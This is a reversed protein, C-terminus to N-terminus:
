LNMEIWKLAKNLNPLTIYATGAYGDGYFRLGKIGLMKYQGVDYVEGVGNDINYNDIEEITEALDLLDLITEICDDRTSGLSLWYSDDFRNDSKLVIFYLDDQKYIWSWSTSLTTLQKARGVDSKTITVQADAAWSLALLAIIISLIRKM